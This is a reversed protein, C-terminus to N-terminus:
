SAAGRTTPNGALEAVYAGLRELNQRAGELADYREVVEDRQAKTRFVSRLTIETGGEHEGFTITSIFADPDDAYSGQRLVIREPATIELWEIHNPHDSGNPGHMVFEWVGGPRFAFSSTTTSFGAPGFWRSLHRVETWAKFVIRRPADIRRRVVIQRDEAATKTEDVRM